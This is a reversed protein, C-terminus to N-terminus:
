HGHGDGFSAKGLEAKLTFAGAVVVLEGPVLGAVIEVMGGGRRGVDVPRPRFADGDAVFVVTGGEFTQLAAEPVVLDAPEDGILITATVFMGPRWRGAPNALVIRATGTRTAEDIVPAVYAVRGDAEVGGRGAAIRAAQGPRLDDLDAQFVGLDVWVSDLDAVVFVAEDRSVAEGLTLHRDIVTGAIATRLEYAALSGDSEITALVQGPVVEQGVDARVGTVIGAFRPVLHALRGGDPQVEGPLTVTTVIRGPGVPAVAVGFEQQVTTSLRVVDEHEEHGAHADRDPQEDPAAGAVCVWLAAITMILTAKATM